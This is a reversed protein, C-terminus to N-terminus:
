KVANIIDIIEQAAAAPDKIAAAIIEKKKADLELLAQQHKEDVEKLMQAKDAELQAREKQLKEKEIAIGDVTSSKKFLIISLTVTIALCIIAGIWQLRGAFIGCVFSAVVNTIHLVLQLTTM